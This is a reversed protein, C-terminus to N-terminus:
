MNEIVYDFFRSGEGSDGFDFRESTNNDEVYVKFYGYFDIRKMERLPKIEVGKDMLSTLCMSIGNKLQPYLKLTEELTTEENLSVLNLYRKMFYIADSIDWLLLAKEATLEGTFRENTIPFSEHFEIIM